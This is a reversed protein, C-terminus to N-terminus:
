KMAQREYPKLISTASVLLRTARKIKGSNNERAGDLALETAQEYLILTRLADHHFAERQPPPDLRTMANEAVMMFNNATVLKKIAEARNMAGGISKVEKIGRSALSLANQAKQDYQAVTAVDPTKTQIEDQKPTEPADGLIGIAIFLAVVGVVIWIYKTTKQM